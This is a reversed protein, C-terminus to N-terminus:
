TRALTELLLDISFLDYKTLYNSLYKGFVYDDGAKLVTKTYDSGGLPPDELYLALSSYLWEPCDEKM